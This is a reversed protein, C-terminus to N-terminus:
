QSRTTPLVFGAGPPRPVGAPGLDWQGPDRETLWGFVPSLQWFVPLLERGILTLGRIGMSHFVVFLFTLAHLPVASVKLDSHSTDIVVFRLCNGEGAGPSSAHLERTEEAKRRFEALIAAAAAEATSPSLGRGIHCLSCLCCRPDRSCLDPQLALTPM